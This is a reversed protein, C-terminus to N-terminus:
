HRQRKRPVAALPDTVMWAAIQARSSFGLKNLISRVHSDVTRESIFLRAGIQKNTLGDAVLRAVDAERPGLPGPAGTGPSATGPSAAQGAPQGLALNLAADRGLHRGAEVEAEYMAPGLAALASETARTLAPALFPMVNAGAGIREADAASILRAALRAQGVEAAHCGLAALLYFQAVRDDIQLAIRLAETLLPRAEGLDRDLLAASGLNLLMIELAYPDGAERARRVGEAAAARVAGLDAEFFGNLARAQLVAVPGPPYALGETAAHAEELLRRAAARDGALNEANASMALAETLLERQGTRRAATVAARLPPRAAAPDAKLVALFGLIFCAWGRAQPEGDEQALFEELWRMGETTARTIWYWGLSAALDLGCAVDARALCRQMVARINDMELDAWGLWELLRHRGEMASQGCRARYYGACRLEVAKEEGAEALKIRAFERMTEHLRYCALGRADERMVLSKGVLSSLVDLAGAAPVDASTCVAEVDDLTFRGAFVCCRRLVAREVDSLLDHSWELTTRLTQHRPLAARSGGTLLGFRDALRDLIQEAALVRTRVAALEIALPLGDLRRVLDAVVARNAATLEFTGSAAAARETFLQVAENQRLRDLPEAAGPAPLGLPPVPVVYEGPVSLPERSTAIVRVGPAARLLDTVVQGAEGLLHECNDAVLLLEKDRLYALLLVMPGAAAQDRLDLATMVAHSVLAPDEVEALEVLWGGDRFGRGLDAAARIALRTKGVGGPGTLSVLRAEALKKRIEALERRRGVFSAAEAPLNGPRRAPRAM